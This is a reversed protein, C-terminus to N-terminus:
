ASGSREVTVVSRESTRAGRAVSAEECAAALITRADGFARHYRAALESPMGAGRYYAQKTVATSM